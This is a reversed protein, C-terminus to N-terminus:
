ARAAAARLSGLSTQRRRAVAAISAVFAVVAWAMVVAIAGGVSPGIGTILTTLADAARPLPFAQRVATFIGGPQAPLVGDMSVVQAVLLFLSAIVGGRQGFVALLGQHVITLSIATCAIVVLVAMPHSLSVGTAVLVAALLVSQGLAFLVAPRASSRVFNVPTTASAIRRSGMAGLGVVTILAGIWLAIASAGGALSTKTGAQASSYSVSIPSAIANSMASAEDTDYVPIQNGADRLGDVLTNAGDSLTFSGEALSQAGGALTEAGDSASVAGDALTNAGTSATVTGDSLTRAGDAADATGDALDNAGEALTDAGDAASATGDALTSSGSALQNAGSNLSQSNSSLTNLGNNLTSSGSALQQAGANLQEANAGLLNSNIQEALTDIGGSVSSAGASLTSVSTKLTNVQGSLSQSSSRASSAGASLQQNLTGAGGSIEQAITGAGQCAAADGQGCAEILAPLSDAAAKLEEAGEAASDLQGPLAELASTDINQLESDLQSLGDAVQAAGDQLSVSSAGSPQTIGNYVQQVGDTYSAVGTVLQDAGAALTASGSAANDVGSTYGSVGTSLTSAGTALQNSGTRLDSMGNSLTTAGNALRSSGNTLTSMGDALTVSGDALTSMGDALTVTGDALTSVGDSLTASGEALESAGEYLTSSGDALEGAGDAADEMGSAIQGTGALSADLYNVTLTTGFEKSASAVVAHSILGMVDSSGNAEISVQPATTSAGQLVDAIGSSFDKPITVVAAYTGDSLGTAATDASVIDWTLSTSGESGTGQTLRATIQRGAPLTTGSDLTVPEDLNVVAARVSHINDISSSTGTLATLGILSPLLLVLAFLISRRKM